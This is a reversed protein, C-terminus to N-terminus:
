RFYNRIIDQYELPVNGGTLSREVAEGLRGPSAGFSL